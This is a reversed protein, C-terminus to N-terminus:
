VVPMDTDPQSNRSTLSWSKGMKVTRSDLTLVGHQQGSTFGMLRFQSHYSHKAEFKGESKVRDRDEEERIKHTQNQVSCASGTSDPAGYFLFPHNIKEAEGM